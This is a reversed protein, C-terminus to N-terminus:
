RRRPASSWRGRDWRTGRCGSRCARLRRCRGRGRPGLGFVPISLGRAPISARLARAQGTGRRGADRRKTRPPRLPRAQGTGHRDADRRKTRFSTPSPKDRGAGTPTPTQNPLVYPVPRDRGTGTPTAANPEPPRLPRAQGTGHRDADRRKIRPPRLPRAQGTGRRDADRRKTRSAVLADGVSLPM